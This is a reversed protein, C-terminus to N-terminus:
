LASGGQKAMHEYFAEDEEKTKRKKVINDQYKEKRKSSKQVSAVKEDYTTGMSRRAIPIHVMDKVGAPDPVFNLTTNMWDLAQKWPISASDGFSIKQVQDLRDQFTAHDTGGGYKQAKKQRELLRSKCFEKLDDMNVVADEQLRNMGNQIRAAALLLDQKQKEFHCSVNWLNSVSYGIQLNPFGCHHLVLPIENALEYAPKGPYKSTDLLDTVISPEELGRGVLFMISVICRIQHWLFAQGHIEFYCVRARDLDFPQPNEEGGDDFLVASGDDDLVYIRAYHVTRCFNYVHEVDMKCFNRFDHEGVLRALAAQMQHLNLQLNSFFYRYTRTTASFRASFEASVPCWGLVRIEPPLVNNLIKDYPLETMDRRIRTPPTTTNATTTADQQNNTTTSQAPQKQQKKKKNTTPKSRPPCYVTLRQSSHNPLETDAVIQNGAADWSARPSFASKLQLAVVQGAASVGKDTRGCRSYQAQSRSYGALLNTQELAAFLAREISRDDPRGVNEALGSYPGGDYHIHLAIHRRRPQNNDNNNITTSNNNSNSINQTPPNTKSKDEATTAAAAAARTTPENSKNAETLKSNKKSKNHIQLVARRVHNPSVTQTALLQQLVALASLTAPSTTGNGNEHTSNSDLFGLEQLVEDFGGGDNTSSCSEAAAM